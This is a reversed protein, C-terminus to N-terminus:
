KEKKEKRKQNAECWSVAAFPLHSTTATSCVVFHFSLSFQSRSECNMQRTKPIPSLTLLHSHSSVFLYFAGLLIMHVCVNTRVWISVCFNRSTQIQTREFSRFTSRLVAIIWVLINWQPQNTTVHFMTRTDVNNNCMKLRIMIATHRRNDAYKIFSKRPFFRVQRRADYCPAARFNSYLVLSLLLM